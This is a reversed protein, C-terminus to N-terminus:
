SSKPPLDVVEGKLEGSEGELHVETGAEWAGQRLFALALAQGTRPSIAASTVQGVEQGGHILKVGPAIAAAGPFSVALLKRNLHGYTRIRAMVEQGIYCGKKYDIAEQLGCEGPFRTGDLEAGWRPIGAEIRLVEWAAHGVPGGGLERAGRALAEWVGELSPLPVELEFGGEPAVGARRVCIEGEKRPFRARLYAEAPPSSIELARDLLGAAAPGQVSLIGRTEDEGLVEIGELGAYMRLSREAEERGPEGLILLFEETETRYLHFAAVLKGKPTLFCSLQGRGPELRLVNSTLIRQLFEGVRAAASGERGRIRLLGRHTQDMIGVAERVARYEEGPDGYHEVLSLNWHNAFRAGSRRHLPALPGERAAPSDAM